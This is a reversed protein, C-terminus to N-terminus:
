FTTQRGTIESVHFEILLRNPLSVRLDAVSLLLFSVRKRENQICVNNQICFELAVLTSCRRLCTNVM